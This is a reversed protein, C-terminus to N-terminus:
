KLWLNSNILSNMQEAQAIDQLNKNKKWNFYALFNESPATFTTEKKIKQEIIREGTKKGLLDRETIKQQKVEYDQYTQTPIKKMEPNLKFRELVEIKEWGTVENYIYGNDILWNHYQDARLRTNKITKIDKVQQM